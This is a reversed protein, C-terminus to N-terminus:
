QQTSPQTAPATTPPTAPEDAPPNKKSKHDKKKETATIKTATGTTPTIKVEIGATLDTVKKGSEKNITVATNADTTVTLDQGGEKKSEKIVLSTGDAAVSVVKGKIGKEEKDKAAAVGVLSLVLAPVLLMTWLKMTFDGVIRRLPSYRDLMPRRAFAGVGRGQMPM